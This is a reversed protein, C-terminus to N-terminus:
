APFFREHWLQFVLLTWLAKRNDRRGEFHDEILRTVCGPDFLGQRRLRRESLLDLVLDRLESRLWRAVPFSFGKKPRRIIEPPLRGALARRLLYKRTLGRLKLDIPLRTALEVLCTNLMPVRVELSCAMSARDIKTLIDGELYMKMDLYLVQSLRDYEAARAVHEDLVEFPNKLGSGNRLDPALAERADAGLWVHHRRALPQDTGLIFRKARFDLSMNADSVPLRRVLPAILGNRVGAPLRQYVDALRHAQLTSYGAFLEDGGDGGLAVTVQGRAFRSLLHTPVVSADALPEDLVDALRPVMEWVMRPEVVREAHRTGLFSAVRRAYASEDFSADAFGMSFTRVDAGLDVMAAVVASSDIGGSLFVGLPVDSVLELRVAERLTTWLREALQEVPARCFEPDPSLDLQWYAQERVQGDEVVLAHGPRLREVGEFISHPTPVYEYTLYLELSRPDLRRSFGPLALLAKPESAFVLQGAHRTYYLPKIGVRDRALVARRRRNDWVALGFMGNLRTLFADGYEEYAHVVVECDSGTTFRHGREILESRLERYNYIEGNCVVQLQGDESALPQHGGEVDIIALRRVGLGASGLLVRGAEDPGRHVLTGLMAELASPDVPAHADFAVFGCIGCV